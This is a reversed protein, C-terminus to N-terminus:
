VTPHDSINFITDDLLDLVLSQPDIQRRACFDALKAARSPTLPVSLFSITGPALQLVAADRGAIVAVENRRASMRGM